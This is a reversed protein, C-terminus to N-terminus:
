ATFDVAEGPQLVAVRTGPTREAVLEAFRRPPAGLDPIRYVPAAYTGWHIPVVLKPRVLDVAAAAREEDMHGEAVKPGWGAVPLLAVDVRGRLESMEDFFDTDGAFWVSASPGTVLYGMTPNKRGLPTRPGEHRADTAEIRLGAAEASRGPEMATVPSAGAGRVLDEAGRPAFAPVGGAVRRLSPVDLHDRHDHSVLVLDAGDVSGADARGVQRKLLFLVRRRLVPDTLVRVGDMEILTTAHGVFTIRAKPDGM